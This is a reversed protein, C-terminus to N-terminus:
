SVQDVDLRQFILTNLTKAKFVYQKSKLFIFIQSQMLNEIDFRRDEVLLFAPRFKEWDNSKLVYIDEEEVDISLFDIEQNIPLHEELIESLTRPTLEINKCTTYEVTKGKLQSSPNFTNLAPENFITFTIPKTRSSVASEINIDRPRYLRFPSMSGPAADINIGRWGRKYFFYTNSFLKPHHAGVDIYFGKRKSGILRRLILDEGEQSFSRQSYANFLLSSM